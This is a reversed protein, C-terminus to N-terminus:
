ATVEASAAADLLVAGACRWWRHADLAAAIEANIGAAACLHRVDAMLGLDDCCVAVTSITMASRPRPSPAGRVVSPSGANALSHIVPPLGPAPSASSRRRVSM